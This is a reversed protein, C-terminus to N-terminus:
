IDDCEDVSDDERAAKEDLKRVAASAVDALNRLAERNITLYVDGNGYTDTFSLEVAGTGAIVRIEASNPVCVGVSSWFGDAPCVDSSMPKDEPIMNVTEV